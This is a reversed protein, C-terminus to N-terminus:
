NMLVDVNLPPNNAREYDSTFVLEITSPMLAFSAYGV